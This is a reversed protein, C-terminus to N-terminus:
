PKPQRLTQARSFRRGTSPLLLYVIVFPPVFLGGSLERDQVFAVVASAFPLAFLAIGAWRAWPRVNWLGVACVVLGCGLAVWVGYGAQRSRALHFLAFAVIVVGCVGLMVAAWGIDTRLKEQAKWAEIRESM